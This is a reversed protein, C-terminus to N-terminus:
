AVKLGLKAAYGALDAPLAARYHVWKGTAPHKFGLCSAHLSLRPPRPYDRLVFGCEGTPMYLPDGLVQCNLFMMHARIQHLRGTKITLEVLAAPTARGTGRGGKGASAVSAVTKYVTVADQGQRSIVVKKITGHGEPNAVQVEKLRAQVVGQPPQPVGATLALYEKDIRREEFDRRLQDYANPTKAIVLLGSTDKDLRHLLGFDRRAGLNHLLKGMHGERLAFVGNLLADGAHGKGPQTVVGAPKDVIILDPDEHVVPVVVAPNPRVALPISAPAADSMLPNYWLRYRCSIRSVAAV